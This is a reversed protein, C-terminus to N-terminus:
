MSCLQSVHLHFSSTNGINKIFHFDFHEQLIELLVSLIPFLPLM